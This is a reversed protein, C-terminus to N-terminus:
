RTVADSRAWRLMPVVGHPGKISLLPVLVEACSISNPALQSVAINFKYRATGRYINAIEAIKSIEFAIPMYKLLDFRQLSNTQPRASFELQMLAVGVCIM